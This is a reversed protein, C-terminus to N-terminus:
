RSVKPKCNWPDYRVLKAKTIDPRMFQKGSNSLMSATLSFTSNSIALIDCQTLLFYDPYFSPDPYFSGINPFNSILDHSTVPDYAKFDPLVSDLDDSALFLVLWSVYWSTPAVWHRPHGIFKTFDGRRIHIGIITNGKGQLNELGPRM